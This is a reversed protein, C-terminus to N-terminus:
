SGDKPQFITMMRMMNEPEHLKVEIVKQEYQFRLSGKVQTETREVKIKRGGTDLTREAEQEQGRIQEVVHHLRMIGTEEKYRTYGVRILASLLFLTIAMIYSAEVTYSASFKKRWLKKGWLKKDLVKNVAQNM